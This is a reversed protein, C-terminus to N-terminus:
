RIDSGNGEDTLHPESQEESDIAPWPYAAHPSPVLKKTGNQHSQWSEPAEHAIRCPSLPAPSDHPIPLLTSSCNPFGIELTSGRLIPLFPCKPEHTISHLLPFLLYPPTSLSYSPPSCSSTLTAPITMRLFIQRM